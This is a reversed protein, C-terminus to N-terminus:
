LDHMPILVAVWTKEGGFHNSENEEQGFSVSLESVLPIGNITAQLLTYVIIVHWLLWTVCLLLLLAPSWGMLVGIGKLM